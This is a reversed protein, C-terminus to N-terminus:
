RNVLYIGGAIGGLGLLLTPPWPEGLFIGGALVGMVPGFFAFSAVRSAPFRHILVFWTLYSFLAVIISQYFLAAATMATFDLVPHPELILSGPVM